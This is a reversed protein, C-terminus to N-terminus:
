KRERNKKLSQRIKEKSEESMKKDKMPSVQKKRAERIKEKTEDSLKKGKKPSPKGFMPNDKGMMTKALEPRKKGEWPHKKRNKAAISLKIKHNESFPKSHKGKNSKSIKIKTEESHVGMLTGGTPSINYGIPVLTNYENIYDEELKRAELITECEILIERKFNRSGYKKIAKKSFIALDLIDM